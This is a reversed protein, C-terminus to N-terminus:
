PKGYEVKFDEIESDLKEPKDIVINDMM